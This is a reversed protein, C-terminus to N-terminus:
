NVNDSGLVCFFMARRAPGAYITKIRAQCPGMFLAQWFFSTGM